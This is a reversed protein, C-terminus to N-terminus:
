FDYSDSWLWVDIGATFKTLSLMMIKSKKLSSTFWRSLNSLYIIAIQRASQKEELTIIIKNIYSYVIQYPTYHNEQIEEVFQSSILWFTADDIDLTDTKVKSEDTIKNRYKMLVNLFEKWKLFNQKFINALDFDFVRSPFQWLTFLIFIQDSYNKM